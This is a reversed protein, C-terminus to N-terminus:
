SKLAYLTNTRSKAQIYWTFSCGLSIRITLPIVVFPCHEQHLAPEDRVDIAPFTWITELADHVKIGEAFM